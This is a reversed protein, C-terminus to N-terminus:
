FEIRGGKSFDEAIKRAEDSAGVFIDVITPDFHKGKGEIIIDMAKEFSFAEKYSRKSVLADFVDAIAMIRASLPIEEGSIGHPYGSGDWKEHHYMALNYAENLYASEPVKEIAQKIIDGGAITHKKMLEFEEDTLRGPKNLVADPVHIKGVDHLPASNVVNSMFESTLVDTHIGKKKMENMIIEAYAATKRVHDGTCQDRSEVIDALVMILGNQMKTITVNKNQIDNVYTMSDQTTKVFARYLNEIEDGTHIGLKEISEVSNERASESNYAFATATMAMTNVPFLINFQAIWLGIALIMIFFGLFLSILKTFFCYSDSRLQEMSIDAATYCVCEGKSDYVPKYVTLLWGYSDDTIIPDIPKGELLTPILESFSEDFPVIEGPESGEVEESDLDFVVHCGDEMIKYVYVYEIDPSSNRVGYLLKEIETYGDAAEGKELYEDVKDGDIISAALETVGEAFRTHDDVTSNYYLMYSIGTAEMAIPISAFIILLLVKTRLSIVRSDSKKVAEQAKKTLPSQQWGDFNLIEKIRDPLLKFVSFVILVNITKDILDKLFDSALQAEFSGLTGGAYMDSIFSFAISDESFGYLFWTVISGLIGGIFAMILIFLPVTYIRKLYGKNAFFSACVAILVNLFGYYITTPDIALNIMNTMFGVLIGPIYGGLVAAAVTGITDLFLPLEFYNAFASGIYNVALGVASLILAYMLRQKGTLKNNEDVLVM